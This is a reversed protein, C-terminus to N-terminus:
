QLYRWLGVLGIVAGGIMMIQGSDGGVVSGVVLTAGGIIMWAADRRSAREQLMPMPATAVSVNRSIGVQAIVPGVPAAVASVSPVSPVSTVRALSPSDLVQAQVARPAGLVMTVALLAITTRFLNKM